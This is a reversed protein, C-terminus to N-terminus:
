GFLAWCRFAIIAEEQPTIIDLEVARRLELSVDVCISQEHEEVPDTTSATLPLQTLLLLPLVLLYKM